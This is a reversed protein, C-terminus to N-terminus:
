NIVVVQGTEFWDVFAGLSESVFRLPILTRNGVIVAPVDLAVEAGNVRAQPSGVPVLVAKDGKLVVVTRTDEDWEVQAGLAEAIARVPVMTRGQMIVPQVDFTMKKGRIFVKVGERKGAKEYLEGLKEYLDKEDPSTSVADEMDGVAGELEGLEEKLIARYAYVAGPVTTGLQELETLAAEADGKARLCLALAVAVKAGDTSLQQLEKLVSIAKDYEGAARYAVALKWLLKADGPNKVVEAELRAIRNSLGKPAERAQEENEGEFEAEDENEDEFEGEENEGEFEAGLREELRVRFEEGKNKIRQRVRHKAPVVADAGSSANAGDGPELTPQDPAGPATTEEGAALAAGVMTVLFALVLGQVAVAKLSRKM